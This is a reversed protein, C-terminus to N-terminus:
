LAASFSTVKTNYKIGLEREGGVNVQGYGLGVTHEAENNAAHLQGSSVVSSPKIVLCHQTSKVGMNAGRKLVATYHPGPCGDSMQLAELPHLM